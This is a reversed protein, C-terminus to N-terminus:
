PENPAAEVCDFVHWHSTVRACVCVCRQKLIDRAFHGNKSAQNPGDPLMKLLSGLVLNSCCNEFRHPQMQQVVSTSSTGLSITM